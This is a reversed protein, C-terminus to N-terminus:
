SREGVAGCCRQPLQVTHLEISDLHASGDLLVADFPQYNMPGGRYRLLHLANSISQWEGRRRSGQQIQCRDAAVIFELSGHLMGKTPSDGANVLYM